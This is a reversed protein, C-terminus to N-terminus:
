PVAGPNPRAGTLRWRRLESFASRTAAGDDSCRGWSTRSSTWTRQRSSTRERTRSGAFRRPRRPTATSCGNSPAQGSGPPSSTRRSAPRHLSNAPFCFTTPRTEMLMMTVSGGLSSGTLWTEKPAGFRRVFLLRLAETDEVAERVAYGGAPLDIRYPAGGLEGVEATAAPRGPARETPPKPACAAPGAPPPEPERLRHRTRRPTELFKQPHVTSPVHRPAPYRNEFV